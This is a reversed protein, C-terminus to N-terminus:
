KTIYYDWSWISTKPFLVENLRFMSILLIISSVLLVFRKWSFEYKAEEKQIEKEIEQDLASIIKNREDILRDIKENRRM